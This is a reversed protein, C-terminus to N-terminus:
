SRIESSLIYDRLLRLSSVILRRGMDGYSDDLLRIVVLVVM